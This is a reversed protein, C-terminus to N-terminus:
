PPRFLFSIASQTNTPSSERSPPIRLIRPVQGNGDLGTGLLQPPHDNGRDVRSFGCHDASYFHIWYAREDIHNVEHIGSVPDGGDFDLTICQEGIGLLIRHVEFIYASLLGCFAGQFNGTGPAV